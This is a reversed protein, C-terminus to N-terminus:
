VKTANFSGVIRWITSKYDEFRGGLDFGLRLITSKLSANVGFDDEYRLDLSFTQLGHKIRADAVQQWTPEYTYWTLGQPIYPETSGNLTAKFLLRNTSSSNSEANIGTQVDSMNFPAVFNIGLEKSWGTLHEVEIQSAGLSILLRIAEAFKHELTLRHFQAVPYYLTEVTPHGVYVVKSRPHGPPFDVGRTESRSVPLIHISPGKVKISPDETLIIWQRESYPRQLLLTVQNKPAPPRAQSNSSVPVERDNAPIIKRDDTPMNVNNNNSWFFDEAGISEQEQLRKALIFADYMVFFMMVIWLLPSIIFAIVALFIGLIGKKTQGIYFYGLGVFLLNLIVAVFPQPAKTASKMVEGQLIDSPRNQCVKNM